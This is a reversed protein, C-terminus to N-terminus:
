FHYNVGFRLYSARLGDDNGTLAFSRSGLDTYLYEVRASWNPTFGVEMGAGLTWGLLTHTQTIGLQEARLDGYGLGFTGYMLINNMAYGARARMTGFWPNSFKYSAFTDDAGSAQLDTEGGFVFQGSQWNYGVQAGGAFGHPSTDIGSVNGWEYGANLGAYFGAWNYSGTRVNSYYPVPGGGPPLDAALATGTMLVAAAAILITRRM